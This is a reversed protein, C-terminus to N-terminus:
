EDAAVRRDTMGDFSMEDGLVRAQEVAKDFRSETEAEAALVLPGIPSDLIWVRVLRMEPWEVFGPDHGDALERYRLLPQLLEGSFVVADLGAISEDDGRALGAAAFVNVVDDVSELPTGDATQVPRVIVSRVPCCGPGWPDISLYGPRQLAASGRGPTIVLGPFDVFRMSEGTALRRFTAMSVDAPVPHPATPGFRTTRILEDAREVWEAWEDHAAVVVIFIPGAPDPFEYYRISELDRANFMFGSGAWWTHVCRGPVCDAITPGADVDVDVDFWTGTRDGASAPGTRLVEIQDVDDLWAGLDDPPVMGGGPLLNEDHVRGPDVLGLPRTLIVLPLLHDIPTDPRTLFFSGPDEGDLRWWDDLALTTEIGLVDTTHLGPGLLAPPPGNVVVLPGPPGARLYLWRQRLVEASGENPIRPAVTSTSTSAALSDDVLPVTELAAAASSPGVDVAAGDSAQDSPGTCAVAVLALMVKTVVRRTGGLGM